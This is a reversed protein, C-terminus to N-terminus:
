IEKLARKIRVKIAPALPYNQMQEIHLRLENKLDPYRKCIRTAVTIAFAKSAIPDAERTL